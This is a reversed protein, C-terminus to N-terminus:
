SSFLPPPSVFFDLFVSLTHHMKPFLFVKMNGYNEMTIELKADHLTIYAAVEQEHLGREDAYIVAVVWFRWLGIARIAFINM